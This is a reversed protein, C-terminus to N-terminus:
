FLASLYPNITIRSSKSNREPNVLIAYGQATLIVLSEVFNVQVLLPLSFDSCITVISSPSLDQYKWIWCKKLFFQMKKWSFLNQTNPTVNQYYLVNVLITYDSIIYYITIVKHKRIWLNSRTCQTTRYIKKDNYLWRMHKWNLMPYKESLQFLGNKNM